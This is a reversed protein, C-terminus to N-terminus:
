NEEDKNDSSIATSQNNNCGSVQCEGCAASCLMGYRKCGCRSTVYKTKCSCYILKLVCNPAPPKNCATPYYSKNKVYWGWEKAAISQKTSKWIQIQFYTRFSHYKTSPDTPLLREPKVFSKVTTVKEVLMRHRLANTSELTKCGYLLLMAKRGAAEIDSHQSFDSCFTNAVSRLESVKM